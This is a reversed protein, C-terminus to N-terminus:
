LHTHVNHDTAFIVQARTATMAPRRPAAVKMQWATATKMLSCHTVYNQKAPTETPTQIMAIAILVQRIIERHTAHLSLIAAAMATTTWTSIGFPEEQLPHTLM